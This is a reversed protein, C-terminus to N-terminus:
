FDRLWVLTSCRRVANCEIAETGSPLNFNFLGQTVSRCILPTSTSASIRTDVRKSYAFVKNGVGDTLESPDQCGCEEADVCEGCECSVLIDALHDNAPVDPASYNRSDAEALETRNTQIKSEGSM